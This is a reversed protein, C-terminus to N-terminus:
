QRLDYPSESLPSQSRALKLVAVSLAAHADDPSDWGTRRDRGPVVEILRYLQEPVYNPRHYDEDDLSWGFRGALTKHPTRDAFRVGTLPYKAVVAPGVGPHFRTNNCAACGLNDSWCSCREGCWAAMTGHWESPFGRRVVLRPYVMNSNPEGLCVREGQWWAAAHATFLARERDRLRQWYPAMMYRPDNDRRSRPRNNYECQVRIFAAREAYRNPVRGSGSCEPCLHVKPPRGVGNVYDWGVAGRGACRSCEDTQHEELWDAYVLRPVDDEPAARIAALFALEDATQPM